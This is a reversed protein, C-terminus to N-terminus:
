KKNLIVDLNDGTNIPEEKVNKLDSEWSPPNNRMNTCATINLFIFLLVLMKKM